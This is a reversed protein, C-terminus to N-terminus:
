LAVVVSKFRKFAIEISDRKTSQISLIVIIGSSYIQTLGLLQSIFIAFTAGLSTKIVRQGIINKM